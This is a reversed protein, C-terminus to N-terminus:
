KFAELIFFFLFAGIFFLVQLIIPAVILAVTVAIITELM